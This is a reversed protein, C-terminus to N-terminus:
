RLPHFCTPSDGTFRLGKPPHSLNKEPPRTWYGSGGFGTISTLRSAETIWREASMNLPLLICISAEDVADVFTQADIRSAYKLVEVEDCDSFTSKMLDIRQNISLTLDILKKWVPPNSSM